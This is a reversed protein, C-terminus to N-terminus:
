AAINTVEDRFRAPEALWAFDHLVAGNATKVQVRGFGLSRGFPSQRFVISQRAVPLVTVRKIGLSVYEFLRRNTVVLVTRSWHIYRYFFFLGAAGIILLAGLFTAGTLDGQVLFWLVVLVIISTLAAVPALVIPHHRRIVLAVREEDLLYKSPDPLGITASDSM